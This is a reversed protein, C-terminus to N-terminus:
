QPLCYGLLLSYVALTSVSPLGSPMYPILETNCLLLSAPPPPSPCISPFLLRVSLSHFPNSFMIPQFSFLSSYLSRHQFLSTSLDLMTTDLGVPLGGRILCAPELILYHGSKFGRLTRHLDASTQTLGTGGQLLFWVSLM